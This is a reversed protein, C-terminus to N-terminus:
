FHGGGLPGKRFAWNTATGVEQLPCGTPTQSHCFSCCLHKQSNSEGDWLFGVPETTSYELTTQWMLGTSTTSEGLALGSKMLGHLFTTLLRATSESGRCEWHVICTLPSKNTNRENEHSNLNCLTVCPGSGKLFCMKFLCTSFMFCTM